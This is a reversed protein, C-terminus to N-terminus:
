DLIKIKKRQRKIVKDIPPNLRVWVTKNNEKIIRGRLDGVSTPVICEKM